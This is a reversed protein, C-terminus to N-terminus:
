RRGRRETVTLIPLDPQGDPLTDTLATRVRRRITDTAVVLVASPSAGIAGTVAQHILTALARPMRSRGLKEVAAQLRAPLTVAVRGPENGWLLPSVAPLTRIRAAIEEPAEGAALRARLRDAVMAEGIPTRERMLARLAVLAAPLLHHPLDPLAADADDLGTLRHMARLVATELAGLVAFGAPLLLLTEPVPGPGVWACAVGNITPAPAALPTCGAAAVVEPPSLALRADDPVILRHVARGRLLITVQGPVPQTAVRRLPVVPLEFRYTERLRVYLGLVSPTNGSDSAQGILHQAMAREALLPDAAEIAIADPTPPLAVRGEDRGPDTARTLAAVASAEARATYPRALLAVPAFRAPKGSRVWARLRDAMAIDEAEGTWRLRRAAALPRATVLATDAAMRLALRRWDGVNARDEARVGDQAADMLAISRAFRRAALDALRARATDDTMLDADTHALKGARFAFVWAWNGAERDSAPPTPPGDDRRDALMPPGDDRRDALLPSIFDLEARAMAASEGSQAAIEGAADGIRLRAAQDAAIPWAAALADLAADTRGLSRLLEAQEFRLHLLLPQRAVADAAIEEATGFGTWRQGALGARVAHRALMMLALAKALRKQRTEDSTDDEVDPITRAARWFAEAAGVPDGAFALAHGALAEGIGPTGSLGAAHRIGRPLTSGQPVAIFAAIARREEERAADRRATGPRPLLSTRVRFAIARAWRM